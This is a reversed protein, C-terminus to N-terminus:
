LADDHLRIRGCAADAEEMLNIQNLAVKVRIYKPIELQEEHTIPELLAAPPCGIPGHLNSACGCLILIVLLMLPKMM